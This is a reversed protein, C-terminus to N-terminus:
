ELDKVLYAYVNIDFDSLEIMEYGKRLIVDLGKELAITRLTQYDNENYTLDACGFEPRHVDPKRIRILNISEDSFKISSFLQYKFGNSAESEEGLASLKKQLTEFDEASQSFITLYNIKFNFNPYCFKELRQVESIIKQIRETISM